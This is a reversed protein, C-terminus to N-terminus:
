LLKKAAIIEIKRARCYAASFDVIRCASIEQTELRAAVIPKGFNAAAHLTWAIDAICPDALRIRVIRFAIELILVGKRELSFRYSVGQVARNAGHNQEWQRLIIRNCPSDGRLARARAGRRM